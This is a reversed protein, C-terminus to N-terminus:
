GFFSRSWAQPWDDFDIAEQEDIILTYLAHEPFDNLRIRWQQRNVTAEYPFEPHLTHKWRVPYQLFATEPDPM